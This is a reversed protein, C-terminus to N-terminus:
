ISRFFAQDDEMAKKFIKYYKFSMNEFFKDKLWIM